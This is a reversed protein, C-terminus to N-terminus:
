VTWLPDDLSSCGAGVLLGFGSGVLAEGAAIRRTMRVDAGVLRVGALRRDRAESGFRTAAAAFVGVPALLVVVILAVILALLPGPVRIESSGGGFGTARTSELAAPDDGPAAIDDAGLYFPSALLRALAPSVVLEGPGPLAAEGPPRPPQPGEPQVLLGKIFRDRFETSVEEVLITTASAPVEAYTPQRADERQYRAGVAHPLSVAVLLLAVGFGVGLATLGTSVWGSRGGALAMRAGLLVERVWARPGVWPSMGRRSGNVM